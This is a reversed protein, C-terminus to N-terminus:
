MGRQLEGPDGFESNKALTREGLDCFCVWRNTQKSLEIQLKM